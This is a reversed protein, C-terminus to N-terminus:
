RRSRDILAGVTMGAVGLFIAWVLWHGVFLGIGLGVVIGALTGWGIMAHEEHSPQQNSSPKKSSSNM